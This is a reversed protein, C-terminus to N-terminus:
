LSWIFPKISKHIKTAKCFFHPLSFHADTVKDLKGLNPEPHEYEQKNFGNNDVGVEHRSLCAKCFFILRTHWYLIERGLHM